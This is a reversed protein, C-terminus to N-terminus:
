FLLQFYFVFIKLIFISFLFKLIFIKFYFQFHSNSFLNLIFFIFYNFICYLFFNFILILIKFVFIKILIKLYMKFYLKFNFQFDFLISFYFILYFNLISFQFYLISWFKDFAGKVIDLLLPKQHINDAKCSTEWGISALWLWRQNSRM